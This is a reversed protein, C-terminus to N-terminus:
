AVGWKDLVDLLEHLNHITADPVILGSTLPPQDHNVRLVGRMGAGQAGAIDAVPNDGVYITEAPATGLRELAFQFVQRSPKLYGADAASMRTAEDPFYDLLGYADLERDRLRMPQFANTLIGITLGKAIIAELGAKVDPFVAVGPVPGWAYAALCDEISIDDDQHFGCQGLAHQLAEVLHPARLTTRANAWLEQVHDGYVAAFHEFNVRLPRQKGVLFDYVRQLHRREISRWGGDFGHWDILTDDMDFLVARVPTQDSM